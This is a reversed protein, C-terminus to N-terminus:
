SVSLTRSLPRAFSPLSSDAARSEQLSLSHLMAVSSPRLSRPHGGSPAKAERPPVQSTNNWARVHETSSSRSSGGARGGGPAEDSGGSGNRSHGRHFGGHSLVNERPAAAPVM